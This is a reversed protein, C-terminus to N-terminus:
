INTNTNYTQWKLSNTNGSSSSYLDLGFDNFYNKMNLDEVQRTSSLNMKQNKFQRKSHHQNRIQGLYLNM